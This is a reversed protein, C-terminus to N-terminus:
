RLAPLVRKALLEIGSLPGALGLPPGFDVRGAGAALLEAAHAAVQDPTGALAFTDLVEDPILSGADEYRGGEVLEHVRTLLEPDIPHTPDLQGVVDVYMAVETRARRRAREGDEDVITVAGMVIRTSGPKRRGLEAGADLGSRALTVMAPNASGGIKLEDAIEGALATVRKGWGGVLLPVAPRELPQRLRLGRGLSFVRGRHGSDDGSLLRRVIDAADRIAALPQPQPVNLRELWAGRALGLYARGSSVLDLFAVQGAIEVPHTTYPNMAAPGLRIRGTAQAAMLLAPIPPQFMLDGFVSFVDFGALEAAGALEAYESPRLNGALGIGVETL